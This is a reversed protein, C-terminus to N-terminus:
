FFYLFIGFPAYKEPVVQGTWHYVSGASPYASCLEAMNLSVIMTILFNVLFSWIVVSPGGTGIAFSYTICVSSLVAVESFGFAFNMFSGLGRFLSPKYGMKIMLVDDEDSITTTDDKMSDM